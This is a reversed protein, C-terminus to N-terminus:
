RPWPNSYLRATWGKPTPEGLAVYLDGRWTPHIAAFTTAQPPSTFRRGEPYLTYLREGALSVAFAGRDAKYNPGNVPTVGEFQVEYAGLSVRDGPNLAVLHETTWFLTGTWAL